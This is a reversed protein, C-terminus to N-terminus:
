KRSAKTSNKIGKAFGLAFCFCVRELEREQTEFEAEGTIESPPSPLEPDVSCQISRGSGYARLKRASHLSQALTFFGALNEENWSANELIKKM